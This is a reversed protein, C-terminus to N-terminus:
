EGILHVERVLEVGTKDRVTQWVHNILQEIDKATADCDQNIIFNAHKTSVQAGGIKFGKLGCSEILKAAFNGPPNRFVSGCNHESTPQTDSRQKLLEKIRNLSIEKDGINLSCWAAIFWEEEHGNVQRYQIEYDNAPRKHLEGQRNITEVETVYNWTEHGYCGANMKLAGGMTGPIGAWFEGGQLNNRACFRAMSACSVGAEVRVVNASVMAMDKLAGQTVIVTGRIGSDSILSNSGLGLWHIPEDAPLTTLFHCLDELDAPKYLTDAPGGVRWTTYKALPQHHFLEGRLQSVLAPQNM